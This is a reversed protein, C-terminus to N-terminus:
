NKVLSAPSPAKKNAKPKDTVFKYFFLRAYEGETVLFEATMGNTIELMKENKLTGDSNFYNEDIRKDWDEFTGDTKQVQLRGNVKGNQVSIRGMFCESYSTSRFAIIVDQMGDAIPKAGREKFLSYWDSYCNSAPAKAPPNQAWATLTFFFAILTALTKM